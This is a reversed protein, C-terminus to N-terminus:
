STLLNLCDYTSVCRTMCHSQPSSPFTEQRRAVLSSDPTGGPGITPALASGGKIHFDKAEIPQSMSPWQTTSPTSTSPTAVIVHGICAEELRIQICWQQLPTPYITEVRTASGLQHKQEKQWLEVQVKEYGEESPFEVEVQFENGGLAM